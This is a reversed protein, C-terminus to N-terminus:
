TAATTPRVKPLPTRSLRREPRCRLRLVSGGEAKHLPYQPKGQFFSSTASSRIRAGSGTAFLNRSPRSAANVAPIKFNPKRWRLRCSYWSILRPFSFQARSPSERM